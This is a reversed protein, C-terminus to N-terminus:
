LGISFIDPSTVKYEKKIAIAAITMMSISLHTLLESITKGLIIPEM